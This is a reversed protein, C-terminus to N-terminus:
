RAAGSAIPNHGKLALDDPKLLKCKAFQPGSFSFSVGCERGTSSPVGSQFPMIWLRLTYGQTFLVGNFIKYGLLPAICNGVFSSINTKWGYWAGQFRMM